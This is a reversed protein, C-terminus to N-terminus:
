NGNMNVVSGIFNILLQELVSIGNNDTHHLNYLTMFYITNGFSYLDTSKKAPFVVAYVRKNKYSLFM